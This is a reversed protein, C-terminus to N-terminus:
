VAFRFNICDGDQVKYEKGELRVLGKDRAANWSGHEQLHDYAVVEARIFGRAIDTHIKGAAEQADTNKAITWAKVEDEGVTFFAMLDLLQYTARILKERSSETIGLAEMFEARESEDLQAIEMEVKGCFAIFPMKNESAWASLEALEKDESGIKSEAINAVIMLPKASLFTYGRIAKKEDENLEVTRLPKEDGLHENLRNLIEKEFELQTKEAGKKRQIEQDLKGLRKEVVALDAIILEVELTRADRLPDVSGSPHPVSPDDFCRVVHVLAEVQRLSTLLQPSIEDKRAQGPSVGAVDVLEVTAYTTKKPKYLGALWDQRIDPVSVVAFNPAAESKGSYAHVEASGGSVANLVTTKGVSPLGIIGVKM